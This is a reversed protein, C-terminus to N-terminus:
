SLADTTESCFVKRKKFPHYNVKFFDDHKTTTYDRYNRIFRMFSKDIRKFKILKVQIEIYSTDSDDEVINNEDNNFYRQENTRM